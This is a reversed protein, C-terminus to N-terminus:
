LFYPPLTHVPHMHNLIPVLPPGKHVWYHVKLNQLIHQSVSHSNAESFPNQEMFDSKAAYNKKNHTHYFDMM